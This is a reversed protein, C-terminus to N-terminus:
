IMKGINRLKIKRILDTGGAYVRYSGDVNYSLLKLAENLQEPKVYEFRPWRRYSTPM